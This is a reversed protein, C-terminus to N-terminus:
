VATDSHWVAYNKWFPWLGTNLDLTGKGAWDSRTCTPFCYKNHSFSQNDSALTGTQGELERINKSDSTYQAPFTPFMKQLGQNWSSLWVFTSSYSDLSNATGQCTHSCQSKKAKRKQFFSSTYYYGKNEGEEQRHHLHSPVKANQTQAGKETTFLSPSFTSKVHSRCQQKNVRWQDPALLLFAANRIFSAAIELQSREDPTMKRSLGRLSWSLISIM